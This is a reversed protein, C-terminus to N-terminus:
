EPKSGGEWDVHPAKADSRTLPDNIKDNAAQAESSHEGGQPQGGAQDDTASM